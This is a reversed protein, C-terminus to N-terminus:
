LLQLVAFQLILWLKEKTRRPAQNVEKRKYTSLVTLRANRSRLRDLDQQGYAPMMMTQLTGSGRPRSAVYTRNIAGNRM